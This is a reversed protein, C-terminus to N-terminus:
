RDDLPHSWRLGPFRAFGRDASILTAGQEIALAALYADPVLNGRAGVTECLDRFISWHREGPGVERSAPAQRVAEAFELATALPTPDRFIRPHTVVRIFGSLTSGPLGLPRSGARADELWRHIRDHDPAEPRHAHVLVNVDVCRM